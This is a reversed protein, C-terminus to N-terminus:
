PLTQLVCGVGGPDLEVAIEARKGSIKPTLRQRNWLDEYQAGPVHPIRISVGRFTHNSLNLLTYVSKTETSFRNACVFTEPTPVLPEVDDSSFADRHDHLIGFSRQLFAQADEDFGDPVPNTLCTGEGNFFPYKLQAWGGDIFPNRSVLQIFKFDPFCFRALHIRHPSVEPDAEAVTRSIAGDQLPVAADIPVGDALLVVTSPLAARLAQMRARQGATFSLPVPHGHTQDHCVIDADAGSTNGILLGDVSLEEGLRRYSDSTLNQWGAAGSCMVYEGPGNPGPLPQGDAQKVAWDLVQDRGAEGDEVALQGEVSLGVRTEGGRVSRVADALVATGGIEDPVLREVPAGTFEPGVLGLLGVYDVRGLHDVDRRLREDLRYRGVETDYVGDRLNYERFSFSEQLWQQRPVQPEYWEALWRKYAGLAVRWDGTHAGIRVPAIATEEGPGYERPLYEVSYDVGDDHKRLNTRRPIGTRDHTMVYIGGERGPSFFDVIQLPNAVSHPQRATIPLNSITGGRSGDMYWTRDVTDIVLESINPFTIGPRIVENGANHLALVLEVEPGRGMSITLMGQLPIDAPTGDIKLMYQALDDTIITGLKEVKMRDSGVTRPGVTVSFLPSWSTRSLRGRAGRQELARHQIEALAVGVSLDFTMSMYGNTFTAFSGEVNVMPARETVPRLPSVDPLPGPPTPVLVVAGGRTATLGALAVLASPMASRVIVKVVQSDRLRKITYCDLDTAVEYVADATRLPFHWDLIGDGYLVGVRLREPDSISRLPVAGDFGTYDLPPLRVALLLHLEDAWAGVPITLPETTGVPVRVMDLEGQPILFPIGRVTVEPAPFWGTKRVWPMIDTHSANVLDDLPAATFDSKKSVATDWGRQGDLSHLVSASPHRTSFIMAAIEVEAEEETAQLQVALQRVPFGHVWKAVRTHWDADAIMAAGPLVVGSHGPGEGEGDGAWVFYEAGARASTSAKYRVAVYEMGRTEVPEDLALMWAMSREPQEVSFLVGEDTYTYSHANDGAPNEVWTPQASVSARRDFTLSYERAITAGQPLVVADHPAISSLRVDDITVSAPAADRTRLEVLLRKIDDRMATAGLDVAIVHWERDNPLDEPGILDVEAETGAASVRLQAGLPLDTARCRVLLYGPLRPDLDLVSLSWRMAANPDPVTFTVAGQQSTVTARTSPQAVADPQAQWGDATDCTIPWLTQAPAAATFLTSLAIAIM